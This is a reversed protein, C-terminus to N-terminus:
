LDNGSYSLNFSKNILPFDALQTMEQRKAELRSASYRQRLKGLISSKVVKKSYREPPIKPDVAAKLAPWNLMSPDRVKCRYIENFKDKMVWYIIDGRWGEVYGFGFEFNAVEKLNLRETASAERQPLAEVFYKLLKQSSEVEQLRQLFRSYVDGRTEKTGYRGIYDQSGSKILEQVEKNLYPGFPHQLRFDRNLGSARAVLGSAGLERAQEESLIGIGLTRNRFDSRKLLLRAYFLFRNIIENISTFYKVLDAEPNISLGGPYNLGRLFRSKTLEYNLRLLRERLVSIESAILELAVDHALVGIDSIHNILRELELFFGRLLQVKEPPNGGALNEVALCYALSHAFSTDGSVHEALRWGEMLNHKTQFLYEIGKHTYGLRIELDEIAEGSLRFLFRGPEIIGAHIPGVSLFYEGEPPKEIHQPTNYVGLVDGESISSHRRLPYFNEPYTKHLFTPQYSQDEKLTEHSYLGFLDALELKFPKFAPYEQEISSYCTEGNELVTEIVQFQDETPHSFIYYIKFASDELEREDNAIVTLLYYDQEKLKRSVGLIDKEELRYHCENPRQRSLEIM